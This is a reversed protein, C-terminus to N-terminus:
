QSRGSEVSNKVAILADQLAGLESPMASGVTELSRKSGVCVADIKFYATNMGHTLYRDACGASRVADYAAALSQFEAEALKMEKRMLAGCADYSSVEAAGDHSIRLQWGFPAGGEYPPIYSSKCEIRVLGNVTRSPEGSHRKLLVVGLVLLAIGALFLSRYAPSSATM